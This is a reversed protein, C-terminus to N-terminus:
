VGGCLGDFRLTGVYTVQGRMVDIATRNVQIRCASSQGDRRARDSNGQKELGVWGLDGRGIGFLFCQGEM